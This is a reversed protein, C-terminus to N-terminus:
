YLDFVSCIFLEQLYYPSQARFNTYISTDSNGYRMHMPLVYEIKGKMCVDFEKEFMFDKYQFNWSTYIYQNM